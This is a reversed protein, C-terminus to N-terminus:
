NERNLQGRAPNAVKGSQDMNSKGFTYDYMCVYMFQIFVTSLSLDFCEKVDSRM